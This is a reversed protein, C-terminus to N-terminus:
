KDTFDEDLHDGNRAGAVENSRESPSSSRGNQYSADDCDGRNITDTGRGQIKTVTDERESAIQGSQKGDSEGITAQQNVVSQGNQESEVEELAARIDKSSSRAAHQTDTTAPPPLAIGNPPVSSQETTHVRSSTESEKQKLQKLYLLM